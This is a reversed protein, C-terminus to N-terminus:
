RRIGSVGGWDSSRGGHRGRSVATATSLEGSLDQLAEVLCRRTQPDQHLPEDAMQVGEHEVGVESLRLPAEAMSRKFRAPWM